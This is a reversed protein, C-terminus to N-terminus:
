LSCRAGGPAPAAFDLPWTERLRAVAALTLPSDDYGAGVQSGCFGLWVTGDAHQLRALIGFEPDTDDNPQPDEWARTNLFAGDPLDLRQMSGTPFKGSFEEIAVGRDLVIFWSGKVLGVYLPGDGLLVHFTERDPYTYGPWIGPTSAIKPTLFVADSREKVLLGNRYAYGGYASYSM